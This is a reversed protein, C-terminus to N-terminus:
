SQTAGAGFTRATADSQKAGALDKETVGGESHTSWVVTVKKYSVRLDPHHDSAEAEFALRTVFSIADPFSPFAYTRTIADKDRSWGPLKALGADVDAASLRAM